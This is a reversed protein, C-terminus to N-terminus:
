PASTSRRRSRRQLRVRLRRGTCSGSLGSVRPPGRRHGSTRLVWAMIPRSSPGNATSTRVTGSLLGQSQWIRSEPNSKRGPRGGHPPRCRPRRRRAPRRARDLRRPAEGPLPDGGPQELRQAQLDDRAPDVDAAAVLDDAEVVQVAVALGVEILVEVAIMLDGLMEVLERHAQLGVGLPVEVVGLRGAVAQGREHRLVARQQPDALVARRVSIRAVPKRAGLPTQRLGSPM